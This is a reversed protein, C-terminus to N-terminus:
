MSCMKDYFGPITSTALIQAVTAVDIIAHGIMIPLPDRNKYYHRCLIVTLPLFSLFRYIIYKADPLTPIFCHQLAFFFAPVLIAAHKNKINNVGCGLYLADEALATTVPLLPVNLIALLPPIPAIMMPPVYLIVGYCIFGAIYMGTMGVLLIMLSVKVIQKMNSTGKKYNILEAYTTGNKKAATIILLITMFNVITAAVSWWNGIDSINKNVILSGIIFILLFIVSRVPLLALFIKKNM